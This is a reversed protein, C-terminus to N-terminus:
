LHAILPFDRSTFKRRSIVVIVVPQQPTSMSLAISVWTTQVPSAPPIWPFPTEEFNFGKDIKLAILLGFGTVREM